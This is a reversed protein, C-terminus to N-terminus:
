RLSEKALSLNSNFDDVEETKSRLESELRAIRKNLQEQLDVNSTPIESALKQPEDPKPKSPTQQTQPTADSVTIVNTKSSKADTKKRGWM